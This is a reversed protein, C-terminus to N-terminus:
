PNAVEKIGLVVFDEKIGWGNLVYTIQWTGARENLWPDNKIFIILDGKQYGRDNFRVEFTKDGNVIASYFDDRIKLTHTRNM